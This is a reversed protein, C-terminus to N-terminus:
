TSSRIASVVITLLVLGVVVFGVIIGALALGDGREAGNSRRIKSRAVFGFVIGAVAPLGLLLIGACSCVLSAVAFGNTSRSAPASAHPPQAPYGYPGHAPTQMPANANPQSTWAPASVAPTPVTWLEPPYWRGDSALWWGPGQASDSM